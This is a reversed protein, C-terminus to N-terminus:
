SNSRVVLDKTHARPKARGQSSSDEGAEAKSDKQAQLHGHVGGVCHEIGLTEDASLELVGSDLAVDLQPGEGDTSAWVVDWLNDTLLRLLWM